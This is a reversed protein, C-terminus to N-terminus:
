QEEKGSPAALHKCVECYEDERHVNLLGDDRECGVQRAKESHNLTHSVPIGTDTQAPAQRVQEHSSQSLAAIADRFSQKTVSDMRMLAAQIIKAEREQAAALAASQHSWAAQWGDRAYCAETCEYNGDGDQKLESEIFPGDISVAWQEFAARCQDKDTM